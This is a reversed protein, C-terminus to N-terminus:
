VFYMVNPKDVDYKVYIKNLFSVLYQYSVEKYQRNGFKQRIDFYDYVSNQRIQKDLLLLYNELQLEKMNEIEDPNKYLVESNYISALVDDVIPVYLQLFSYLTEKHGQISMYEDFQNDFQGLIRYKLLDVIKEKQEMLVHLRKSIVFITNDLESYLPIVHYKKDITKSLYLGM